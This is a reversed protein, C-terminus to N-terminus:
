KPAVELENRVAHTGAAKRALAGVQAKEEASRVPGRLVVDGGETVIKVNHAYTSLSSDDVIAKRIQRTTELDVKDNAQSDATPTDGAKDRQNVKSNDSDAASAPAPASSAPSAAWSPAALLWSALTAAITRTTHRM